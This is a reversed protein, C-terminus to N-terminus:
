FVAYSIKVHSSNLRTSKRDGTSSDFPRARRATLRAEIPRAGQERGADNLVEHLGFAAMTGSEPLSLISVRLPETPRPRFPMFPSHCLHGTKTSLREPPTASRQR